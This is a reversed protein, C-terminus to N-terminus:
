FDHTVRDDTGTRDTPGQCSMKRALIDLNYQGVTASGCGQLVNGAFQSWLYPCGGYLLSGAGVNYDQCNRERRHRIDDAGYGVPSAADHHIGSVGDIKRRERRRVQPSPQRAFDHSFKNATRTDHLREVGEHRCNQGAIGHLATSPPDNECRRIIGISTSGNGSQTLSQAKVRDIEAPYRLTATQLMKTAGQRPLVQDPHVSTPLQWSASCQSTASKAVIM